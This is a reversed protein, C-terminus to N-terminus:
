NHGLSSNSHTLPAATSGGLTEDVQEHYLVTRDFRSILPLLSNQALAKSMASYYYTARSISVRFRQNDHRPGFEEVFFLAKRDCPGTKETRM